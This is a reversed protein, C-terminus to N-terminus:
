TVIAGPQPLGRHVVRESEAPAVTSNVTVLPSMVTVSEVATGSGEVNRSARHASGAIARRRLFYIPDHLRPASGCGGCNVCVTTHHLSIKSTDGMVKVTRPDANPIKRTKRSAAAGAAIACDPTPNAITPRALPWLTRTLATFRPVPAYALPDLQVTVSWNSSVWLWTNLWVVTFRCGPWAEDSWAERSLRGPAPPRM